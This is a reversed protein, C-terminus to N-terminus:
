KFLHQFSLSFGTTGAYPQAAQLRSNTGAAYIPTLSNLGLAGITEFVTVQAASDENPKVEFGFTQRSPYGFTTGYIANMNKGLIKRATLGVNGTYDVNVNVNTLGVAQAFTTEIPALLTRTFQANAVGFAEQAVSLEGNARSVAVGPPLDRPENSGYLTPSQPSDGFLNSAGLAPADLLLGLIQQRDYAPNSSLGITLNTVPGHLSLTIDASGGPNRVFNPDPDIVHTTANAELNPILGLDPQFTVSGDLLRFVTSFYTITGGTSTFTGELVPASRTGGVHLDGRAGIDVNASRVRVNREALLDLDFAAERPVPPPAAVPGTFGTDASTAPAAGALILLASFPITGDNLTLRGAIRPASKPAHNLSLAGDVTGSGYSPVDLSLHRARAEFHYAADVGPHVLDAFNESGSADLTGGGAAAHLSELRAESGHFTLRAGLESLPVSEIPASFQGGSFSLAGDLAPAGATGAVVVRGDLKGKLQSGAPLLSQFDAFDVGKASLDLTIPASAPGFGFPAVQLPVSGAAYLAGSAFGVEIDSLVIDRGAISFEGLARPIAVGRVTASEVDFGGGIRPHARTGDIKLDVEGTGTVPYNAGLLRGALAGVNPTKGHLALAVPDRPGPGFSGSGTLSLSPLDLEASTVTTRRATSTATLILRDVPFRGLTGDVLTASTVVRPDGLPGFVRADADVRGSVPLQYGLAPLWVGLDLGRLRASGRFVSRGFLKDMPQDADVLITGSTELRGSPGGFRVNGSVERGHSSWRAAADGLDFRRYRLGAIAVDAHTGISGARKTFRVDVRGHGGLTDGSDFYDNFDALDARPADVDVAQDTGRLLAAFDARTSGVTVRGGRLSIGAPDVNVQASADGFSLGNVSGEPVTVSGALVLQSGRGGLHLDAGLTGAVYRRKPAFVAAFPGLRAAAIHLALDYRSTGAGVDAVSGDVTGVASAVSADTAHMSVGTGDLSLDGNAAFPVNALRGDGLALGGVFRTGSEPAFTGIAAVRGAELPAIAGLHRADADAVSVNIRGSGSAAFTGGAVRATAAFVRLRRGDIALTGALGDVPVGHVTAGPSRDNRAQVITRAPGILLAVRGNVPGRAGLDGTLTRLAAFSGGYNGELALRNGVYAGRGRFAGWPGRAVLSGLRLDHLEGVIGGAADDIAVDGAHLDRAHLLGAVIFRSPPGDGALSGDLRASFDPPVLAIGPLQPARPILVFPYDHGDLWFGSEGASRNLYFAGALSAGSSRQVLFPGFAGDGRPDVHFVGRSRVGSGSGAEAGRADFKLDDGALLASVHLQTDGLAQAAYPVASAPGDVGVVLRTHAVEGLEIRGNASVHLGGYSGQAGVIDLADAFYIVRAAAGEIPFAGYAASGAEVRTAVFPGGAPGELLTAVRAEGGVPLNRSFHFLGRLTEFTAHPAVIGLRFQPTSWNFIGGALRTEVGGLRAALSPAAIGNDFIDVRGRMQTASPVIGPVRMAGDVLVASGAIHYAVTGDAANGFSYLRLDLARAGAREFRASQTNVFYDVLANLDIRAARVRALAYGNVDYRAALDTTQRSEGNAAGRLRLTSSGDSDITAAGGIGSVELRCANALVRNPDLLLLRGRRIELTFALPEPPSVPHAPAQPGAGEAGEINFSGDAHRVFTLTPAEIVAALLGYRHASGPFLDRLRYRLTVREADFVPDGGREAHVGELVARDSHLEVRAFAVRYGTPLDILGSLAARGLPGRFAWLLAVTVVAAVIRPALRLIRRQV